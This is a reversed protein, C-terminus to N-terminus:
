ISDYLIYGKTHRPGKMECLTNLTRWTTVHILVENREAVLYYEMTHTFWMKNIWEDTSLMQTTEVNRSNHISSSYVNMYTKTQFSTKLEKTYIGPLPSASDYAILWETNLKNLFCLTTKGCQSCWNEIGGATYSPENRMKRSKLNSKLKLVWHESAPFSQPCSSIPAITPHCRRSLPCSNSYVGPSPSPCSLRAHQLGHPQFSSSVVSHSFLLWLWFTGEPIM